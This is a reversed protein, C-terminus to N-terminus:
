RPLTEHRTIRFHPNHSEDRRATRQARSANRTTSSRTPGSPKVARIGTSKPTTRSAGHLTRHRNQHSPRPPNRDSPPKWMTASRSAPHSSGLESADFLSQRPIPMSADARSTARARAIAPAAPTASRTDNKCSNIPRLPSRPADSTYQQSRGPEDPKTHESTPSTNAPPPSKKLPNTTTPSIPSRPDSPEPSTIPSIGSRPRMRQSAPKGTRQSGAREVAPAPPAAYDSPCDPKPSHTPSHNIANMPGPPGNPNNIAPDTKLRGPPRCASRNREDRITNRRRAASSLPEPRIPNIHNTPGNQHGASTATTRPAIPNEKPRRRSRRTADSISQIPNPAKFRPNRRDTEIQLGRRRLRDRHPRRTAANITKIPSHAQLRPDGRDTEIELERRRPRERRSRRTPGTITKIPSRAKFRPNRHDTEIRPERRRRRERRPRRTPERITKIPNQAKSQPNRRDTEIRLQRRQRRKRRASTKPTSRPHPASRRTTPTRAPQSNLAEPVIRPTQIPGQGPDTRLTRPPQARKRNRRPTTRRNGAIKRSYGITRRSGARAPIGRRNGQQPHVTGYQGIIAPRRADTANIPPRSREDSNGGTSAGSDHDPTSRDPSGVGAPAPQRAGRHHDDSASRRESM